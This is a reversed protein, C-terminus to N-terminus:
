RGLALIVEAGREVAALRLASARNASIELYGTSGWVAFLQGPPAAEYNPRLTAVKAQGVRLEFSPPATAGDGSALPPADQPTINTVINGFRDAKLVVGHLGDAEARPKPLAFRVYDTIPDGFKEAEIGKALWGALPAFVDRGQFTQSVQAAFYHRATAHYVTCETERAYVLSLVGNDPAVFYHRGASAVIPRRGTGVGPDVVVVHITGLPFYPYAQTLTYAGDLLDYPVVGHCLDVLHAGGEIALVAGKLAGVYGDSYGFDTTLTVIAMSSM